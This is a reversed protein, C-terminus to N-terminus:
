GYGERRESKGYGEERAGSCGTLARMLMLSHLRVLGNRMVLAEMSLMLGQSKEAAKVATLRTISILM